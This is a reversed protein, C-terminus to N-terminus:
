VREQSEDVRENKVKENEIKEGRSEDALIRELSENWLEERSENILDYKNTFFKYWMNWLSLSFSCMNCLWLCRMKKLSLYKIESKIEIEDNCEKFLNRRLDFIFSDKQTWYIWDILIECAWIQWIRLDYTQIKANSSKIKMKSIYSIFFLFSSLFYNWLFFLFILFFYSFSFSYLQINLSLISEVVKYSWAIM